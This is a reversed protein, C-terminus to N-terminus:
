DNSSKASKINKKIEKIWAQEDAKTISNPVIKRLVQIILSATERKVEGKIEDREKIIQDKAQQKWKDIEKKAQVLLNKRNEEAQKHAEELLKNAKEQAKEMRKKEMEEIEKLREEVQKAGNLGKKIRKERKEIVGLLPNYLFRKLIWLLLFFNVVQALLIKGNIGLNDLIDM